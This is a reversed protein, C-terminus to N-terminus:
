QSDGTLYRADAPFHRCQDSPTTRVIFVARLDEVTQHWIGSVLYWIGSVQCGLTRNRVPEALNSCVSM